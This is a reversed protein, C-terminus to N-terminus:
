ESMGVADLAETHERFFYLFEFDACKPVSRTGTGTGTDACIAACGRVDSSRSIADTRASVRECLSFRAPEAFADGRKM